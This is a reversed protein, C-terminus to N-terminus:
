CVVHTMRRSFVTMAYKEQGVIVCEYFITKIEEGKGPLRQDFLIFNWPTLARRCHRGRFFFFV